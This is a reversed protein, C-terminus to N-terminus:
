LKEQHLKTARIVEDTRGTDGRRVSAFVSNAQDAEPNTKIWDAPHAHVIRQINHDKCWAAMLADAGTKRPTLEYGCSLTVPQEFTPMIFALPSWFCTIGACIHVATSKELNRFCSLIRRSEKYNRYNSNLISGHFASMAAPAEQLCSWARTLYNTPYLTDDDCLLYMEQADQFHLRANVGLDKGTHFHIRKNTAGYVACSPPLAHHSTHEEGEELNYHVYIDVTWNSPVDQALLSLLTGEITRFRPGYTSIGIAISVPPLPLSTDGYSPRM